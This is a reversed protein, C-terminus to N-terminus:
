ISSVRTLEGSDITLSINLKNCGLGRYPLYQREFDDYYGPKGLKKIIEKKMMGSKIFPKGDEEVQYGHVIEIKDFKAYVKLEPTLETVYQVPTPDCNKDRVSRFLPGVIKSAETLSMGPVLGNITVFGKITM